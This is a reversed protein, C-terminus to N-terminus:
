QNVQLVQAVYAELVIEVAEMQFLRLYKVKM